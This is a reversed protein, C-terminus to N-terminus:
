MLKEVDKSGGENCEYKKLRIYSVFEKDTAL